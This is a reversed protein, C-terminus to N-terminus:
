EFCEFEVSEVGAPDIVIPEHPGRGFKVKRPDLGMRPGAEAGSENEGDDGSGAGRGGGGGRLVEEKTGYEWWRVVNWAVKSEKDNEAAVGLAYRHGPELGDVGYAGHKATPSSSLYKPDHKALPKTKSDNNGSGGGEGGTDGGSGHSRTFPTSLTVPTNPLLTHFLARNLTVIVKSPPPIRCHTRTSQRVKTGGTTLDTITLAGCILMLKPSLDDAYITIPYSHHSTLTLTLLPAESSSSFSHRIPQLSLSASIRPPAEPAMEPSRGKEHMNEKEKM